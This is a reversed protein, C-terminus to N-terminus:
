SVIEAEGVEVAVGLTVFKGEIFGEGLRGGIVGRVVGNRGGM